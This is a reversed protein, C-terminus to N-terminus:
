RGPRHRRSKQGKLFKPTLSPQRTYIENQIEFLLTLAEGVKRVNEKPNMGLDRIQAAARDLLKTAQRLTSNLKALSAMRQM